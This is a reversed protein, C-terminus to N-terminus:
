LCGLLFIGLVAAKKRPNLKLGLISPLPLALIYVDGLLSLGGNVTGSIAQNRCSGGPITRDYYYAIPTCVTLNVFWTAIAWMLTYAIGIYAWFRFEKTTFIRMYFLIISTKVCALAPQNARQLAFTIKSFNNQQEKTLNCFHHGLGNPILLYECISPELIIILGAGMLWDDWGLEQGTRKRAVLRLTYSLISLTLVITTPVIAFMQKGYVDGPIDPECAASAM